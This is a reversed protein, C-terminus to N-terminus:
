QVFTTQVISRSTPDVPDDARVVSVRFKSCADVGDIVQGAGISGVNGGGRSAEGRAINEFVFEFGEGPPTWGALWTRAPDLARTDSACPDEFGPIAAGDIAALISRETQRVVAEASEFTRMDSWYAAAMREQLATVQAASVALLSMIILLMLAVFLAAGRERHKPARGPFSPSTPQM